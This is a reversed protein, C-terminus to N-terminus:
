AALGSSTNIIGREIQHLRRAVARAGNPDNYINHKNRHPNGNAYSVRGKGKGHSEYPQIKSMAVARLDIPLEMAAALAAAMALARRFPNAPQRM